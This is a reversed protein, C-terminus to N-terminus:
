LLTVPDVDVSWGEGLGVRELLRAPEDSRILVHWRYRGKLRPVFCPVPGLVDTQPLGLRDREKRLRVAVKQSEAETKAPDFQSHVLRTLRAYPPYRNQRRYDTEQRYFGVYDHAAVAQIAYHDPNFTQVVVRGGGPGRGARGAVQTLLQFVREGARFDPFNIGVDASMVGVLTVQPLHLGQAVMQTGILIDIQGTQLKELVEEHESPKSISDRDWRFTRANPFRMRMEEELRQTGTGLYGLDPSGCNRCMQPKRINYGCHHCVLKGKAGHYILAVECRRCRVVLGCERCHVSTAFGRRNIFLIVQEGADLAKGMESRLLRSFMDRNGSRLEQKMDVVDVRAMGGTGEEEVGSVKPVASIRRPLELYELEGISAKYSTTVDPTASGLIVVAGSLKALELATDRAHYRPAPESQKYSSDHEEDLVILGLDPQPSFLASRPGIVVGFEGDRIRWWEDFKEGAKLRSHLVAVQGPFRSSFRQITQPTLSIEPVLVIGRRGMELTRELARLYLETKGSGTVGRLLFANGGGGMESNDLAGKIPTWARQQDETLAPADMREYHRSALPDRIVRVKRSRLVGREGLTKIASPSIGRERLESASVGEPMEFLADLLARQNVANKKLRARVVAEEADVKLFFQTEYKPSVVPRPWESERTVVGLRALKEVRVQARPGLKGKLGAIETRGVDALADLTKKESESPVFSDPWPEPNLSYFTRVKRRFGHPLMLAAAEFLSCLYRRSIWRALSLQRPGLIPAPDVLGIIERTEEFNSSDTLEFVIGQLRRPGFPVWVSHGPRLDLHSPVSYTFTRDPELPADVVIEAFPMALVQPRQM